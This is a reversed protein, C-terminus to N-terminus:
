FTALAELAPTALGNAALGLSNFDSATLPQDEASLAELDMWRQYDAATHFRFKLDRSHEFQRRYDTPHAGAGDLMARGAPVVCKAIIEAVHSTQATFTDARYPMPYKKLANLVTQTLSDEPRESLAKWHDQNTAHHNAAIRYGVAVARSAIRGLRLM